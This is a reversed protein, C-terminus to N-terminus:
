RSSPTPPTRARKEPRAVSRAPASSQSLSALADDAGNSPALPAAGYVELARHYHGVTPAKDGSEWGLVATRSIGIAGAAQRVSFGAAVRAARLHDALRPLPM